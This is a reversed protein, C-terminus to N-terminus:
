KYAKELSAVTKWPGLQKPKLTVFSKGEQRILGLGGLGDENSYVELMKRAIVKNLKSGPGFHMESHYRLKETLGDLLDQKTFSSHTTLFEKAFFHWAEARTVDTVLQHHLCWQTITSQFKPDKKHMVAGMDTLTVPMGQETVGCKHLWSRYRASFPAGYDFQKALDKDKLSPSKLGLSLIGAMYKRNLGFNGHFMVTM